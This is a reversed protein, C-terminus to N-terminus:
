SERLSDGNYAVETDEYLPEPNLPALRQQYDDMLISVIDVLTSYMVVLRVLVMVHLSVLTIISPMAVVWWSVSAMGWGDSIKLLVLLGGLIQLFWFVWNVIKPSNNM